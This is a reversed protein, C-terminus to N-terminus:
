PGGGQNVYFGRGKQEIVIHHLPVERIHCLSGLTEADRQPRVDLRVLTELQTAALDRVPARPMVTDVSCSASVNARPPKASRVHAKGSSRACMRVDLADGMGAHRQADNQVIEVRRLSEGAAAEV